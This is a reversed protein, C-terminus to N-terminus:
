QFKRSWQSKGGLSDQKGFMEVRKKIRRRIQLLPRTRGDTRQGMSNEFSSYPRKQPYFTSFHCLFHYLCHRHLRKKAGRVRQFTKKEQKRKKKKEASPHILTSPRGHSICRYFQILLIFSAKRFCYTKIGSKSSGYGNKGSGRERKRAGAEESGSGRERKRAGAEESGSGRERKRAGAELQRQKM